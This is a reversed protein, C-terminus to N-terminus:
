SALLGELAALVRVPSEERRMLEAMRQASARYSPTGLVDAVAARLEAASADRAVTRGARCAELREAIEDQDRGMPMCVLPVGHALAGMVTSHGGHCVVLAAHPLVASHPVFRRVVGNAPARVVDPDISPGSTLLARVPLAELAESASKLAPEQYQYTSSFSVLVLPLPDDPAWPLDWAGSPTRDLLPGTYVVNAPVGRMPFDFAQPTLVVVVSAREWLAPAVGIEDLGLGRRTENATPLLESWLPEVWSGEISLQLLTHCFAATPLGSREAAALGGLLMFDVVLADAAERDLEALVDQAVEPGALIRDFWPWQGEDEFSPGLSPDFEPARLFPRFACGTEGARGRISEPGLIRVPHGRGALLRGLALAPGVNGGGDWVVVLFRGRGTM